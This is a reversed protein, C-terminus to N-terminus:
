PAVGVAKVVEVIFHNYSRDKWKFICQDGINLGLDDRFQLWGDHITTRKWDPRKKIRLPWSCDDKYVIIQENRSWMERLDRFQVRVDVGYSYNLMHFRQVDVVFEFPPFLSEGFEGSSVLRDDIVTEVNRGDFFSVTFCHFVDFTFVLLDFANLNPLELSDCIGGLGRLTQDNRLYYGNFKKGNHLVYKVRPPIRSGFESLFAMPPVVEDVIEKTSYVHQVFKLGGIESNCNRSAEVIRPYNIESGHKGIIYVNFLQRSCYEFLLIEGGKLAFETFLSHMGVLLSESKDFNVLLKYGNRISLQVTDSVRDGYYYCFRSAISMENSSCDDNTLYKVFQPVFTSSVM